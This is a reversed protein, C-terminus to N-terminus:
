QKKFTTVSQYQETVVELILPIRQKLESVHSIIGVMRGTSKLSLLTDLATELTEQDLTGFGEDVFMSDLAIGGSEQQVIESLGLALALSAQFTEGGSLSSIHRSQNSHADFVDIELGSYGQSVQSKRVLQYRQGTMLSLRQNAQALIRELYYILVYNELTLKQENKGALIEALQFIEQQTKLESELKGIIEKIESIKKNNFTIKYEHQSLESSILEFAQQQQEFAETLQQTDELKKDSIEDKLQSIVLEFSQKSKNFETIENELSEKEKVKSVTNYVQEIDTFGIRKMEDDIKVNINNIEQEIESSSNNLHNKNNQELALESKYQQISNELEELNKEYKEIESQYNEFIKIFADVNTFGTTNEFDNIAIENEKLNHQKTKKDLELQHFQQEYQQQLEKLEVIEENEKEIKQKQAIKKKVETELEHYNTNELKEKDFKALQEEIYNLESEVKIKDETTANKKQELQALSQHRATLDDFDIHQTITHVQNGCIPCTDGVNIASQLTSILDQKNNLDISTKDIKKYADTLQQLEDNLKESYNAKQHKREQLQLYEKKDLENQKLVAVENNLSYITENVQEIKKYNPVRGNIKGKIEELQQILAELKTQLSAFGEQFSQQEEYAAKYKQSREFFLKTKEIFNKSDTIKESENKHADLQEDAKKIQIELESIIEKKENIDEKIKQQKTYLKDKSELLNAIPRVENIANLRKIKENIDNEQTLLQEYNQQNEALKNLTEELKQNNKLCAEADNLKTKHEDKQQKLKNQKQKAKEDFVDLVELVQNTQRPNISKYEILTEDNFTELDLWNTELLHYRQEIQGRVEKVDESLNKQIEEFRQSNFLTRLIEQKESSKSLLFRKFEGQPLIFLQRFQEANVGLLGKIFQNGNTIKSERLGYTEAEMEYVALQGLTKNKNGEKVFAGQRKIKFYQNRLKFEFEVIMPKKSEAFHSRLDSEKRDKTSAEGFLAYVIADFIMTKGSGTKGSILFLQNNNVYNFDITENLFPGFNNLKLTMPRM